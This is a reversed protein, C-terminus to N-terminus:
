GNDAEIQEITAGLKEEVNVELMQEFSVINPDDKIVMKKYCADYLKRYLDLHEELYPKLNKKGRIKLENGNNDCIIEGTEVDIFKFSGQVSTDIYGLATAVDITDWLIDVGKSYNLHMLGLKRDWNCFKTKEVYMEIIHGAPNQAESKKLIDGDENFFDGRKFRFRASCARKWGKGGPTLYPDGYGTINETLGNIGIFTCGNKNLVGSIKKCFDGLAKAIGGYEKKDASEENIQKSAIMTLSDFIILGIKGTKAFDMVIDFYEEASQGAGEIYYTKVDTRNMDYGTSKLAWKPDATCEADIYLIHRPDDPRRQLENRIYSAAVLMACTTKGSSELGNFEYFKGEGCSNYMCFDLSPSGLSLTFGDTKDKVGIKACEIGFKKNVNKLVEDLSLEGIEIM